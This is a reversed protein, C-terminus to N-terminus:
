SGHRSRRRGSWAQGFRRITGLQVLTLPLKAEATTPAAASILLQLLAVADNFAEGDVYGVDGIDTSADAGLMDLLAGAPMSLDGVTGENGCQRLAVM